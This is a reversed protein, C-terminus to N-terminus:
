KEAGTMEDYEKWIYEQAGHRTFFGDEVVEGTIRNVIAFQRPFRPSRTVFLIADSM